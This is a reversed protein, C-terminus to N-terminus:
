KLDFQLDSDGTASVEHKLPTTSADGYPWPKEAKAGAGTAAQAALNSMYPSLLDASGKSDGGAQRPKGVVVKYKGPALGVRNRYKMSFTGEGGTVDVGDTTPKNTSDPIFTITAGELAKGGLLVKGTVPVLAIRDEDNGGCGIVLGLWCFAIASRHRGM